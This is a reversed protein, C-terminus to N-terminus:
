HSPRPFGCFGFIERLTQGVRGKGGMEKETNKAGLPVINM